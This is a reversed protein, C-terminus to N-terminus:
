AHCRFSVPLLWIASMSELSLTHLHFMAIPVGVCSALTLAVDVWWMAWALDRAWQGFAPVAILATANVITAFGM